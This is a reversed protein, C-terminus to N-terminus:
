ILVFILGIERESKSTKFHSLIHEIYKNLLYLFTDCDGLMLIFELTVLNVIYQTLSNSLTEDCNSGGWSLVLLTVTCGAYVRVWILRPMRGTQDSDESDAHLFSPDKAVWQTCLSSQDSKASAWASRLRRQACIGSQQNQRSIAWKTNFGTYKRFWSHSFRIFLKINDYLLPRIYCMILCIHM